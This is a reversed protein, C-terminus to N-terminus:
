RKNFFDGYKAAIVNTLRSAEDVLKLLTSKDIESQILENFNFLKLRDNLLNLSLGKDQLIQCTLTDVQSALALLIHVTGIAEHQLLISQEEAKALVAKSKDSLSLDLEKKATKIQKSVSKTEIERRIEELPPFFDKIFPISSAGKVRALGLLIHEPNITPACFEGAEYRAFFIVKRSSATYNEFM